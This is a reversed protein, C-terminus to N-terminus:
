TMSGFFSLSTIELSMWDSTLSGVHGAPSSSQKTIEDYEDMGSSDSAAREWDKCRRDRYKALSGTNFFQRYPIHGVVLTLM